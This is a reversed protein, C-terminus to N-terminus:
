NSRPIQISPIFNQFLALTVKVMRGPIIFTISQEKQMSSSDNWTVSMFRNGSREWVSYQTVDKWLISHRHIIIGLEGIIITSGLVNMLGSFFAGLFILKVSPGASYQYLVVSLSIGVTCWIILAYQMSRPRWQLFPQGIVRRKRIATYSFAVPIALVCIGLIILGMEKLIGPNM